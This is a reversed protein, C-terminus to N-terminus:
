IFVAKERDIRVATGNVILTKKKEAVNKCSVCRDAFPVVELRALPIPDGCDRCIGYKKEDIRKLSEDIKEIQKCINKSRPITIDVLYNVDEEYSRGAICPNCLNSRSKHNNERLEKLLQKKRKLLKLRIKKFIEEKWDKEKM